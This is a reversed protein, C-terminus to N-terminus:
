KKKQVNPVRVGPRPANNVPPRGVPKKVPEPAAEVPTEVAEPEVPSDEIVEPEVPAIESDSECIKVLSADCDDIWMQMEARSFSGVRLVKGPNVKRMGGEMLLFSPEVVQVATVTDDIVTLLKTRDVVLKGSAGAQYRMAALNKQFNSKM